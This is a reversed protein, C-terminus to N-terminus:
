KNQTKLDTILTSIFEKLTGEFNEFQDFREHFFETLIFGHNMASQIYGANDEIYKSDISRILSEDFIAFWNNYSSSSAQTNKPVKEMLFSLEEIEKRLENNIPTIIGHLYEHVCMGLNPEESPGAIIIGKGDKHLFTNGLGSGRWYADLLNVQFYFEPVENNNVRLFENTKALVPYIIGSYKDLEEKYYSNYKKFLEEIKAKEYFEKLHIGLDSLQSLYDPLRYDVNFNPAGHMRTLAHRYYHSNIQKNKYYDNDRLQINMDRLEKRVQGRVIHYGELNNEEDYGTFNMFAYLTFISIDNDFIVKDELAKIMGKLEKNLEEKQKTSIIDVTRDEKIWYVESGFAEMVKRIPLYTKSEVIMAATDNEVRKGNVVIYRKGIPVEVRVGDKDAIATRTKQDWNVNAGFAELTVRFPVQARSNKDLFPYGSANSFEVYEGDILVEMKEQQASINTSSSILLLLLVLVVLYRKKEM